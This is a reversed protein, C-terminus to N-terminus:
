ENPRRSNKSFKLDNWITTPRLFLRDAIENIVVEVKENSRNSIENSVYNRRREIDILNKKGSM